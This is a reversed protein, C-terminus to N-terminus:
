ILLYGGISSPRRPLESHTNWIWEIYTYTIDIHYNIILIKYQESLHAPIYSCSDRVFLAGQLATEILNKNRKM